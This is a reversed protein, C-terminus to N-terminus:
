LAWALAYLIPLSVGVGVATLALHPHMEESHVGWAVLMGGLVCAALGGLLIM